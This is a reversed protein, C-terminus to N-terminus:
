SLPEMQNNGIQVSSMIKSLGEQYFEDADGVRLGPELNQLHSEAPGSSASKIDGTEPVFTVFRM